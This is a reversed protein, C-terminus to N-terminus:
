HAVLPTYTAVSATVIAGFVKVLQLQSKTYQRYVKNRNTHSSRGTRGPHRNQSNGRFSRVSRHLKKLLQKRTIYIICGCGTLQVVTALGALVTLLILYGFRSRTNVPPVCAIVDIIFDVQGFGFLAPLSVSLLWIVVVAFFIRWPTVIHVYTLPKHLYIVRDVAMLAVTYTSAVPLLISNPVSQSCDHFSPGQGIFDRFGILIGFAITTPMVLLCILLNIIALNLLLM